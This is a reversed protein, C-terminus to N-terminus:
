ANYGEEANIFGFIKGIVLNVLQALTAPIDTGEVFLSKIIAVIENVM